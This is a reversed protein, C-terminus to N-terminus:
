QGPETSPGTAPATAPGTAPSTTSTPNGKVQITVAFTKAPPKDKEWPRRYELIIKAQGKAAVSFTALFTGGEGVGPGGGTKYAVGGVQQVGPGDVKAVVWSYGTTPNGTLKILVTKGAVADVTKGDDLESLVVSPEEARAHRAPLSVMCALLCFLRITTVGRDRTPLKM